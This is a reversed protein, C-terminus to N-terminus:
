HKCFARDIPDPKKLTSNQPIGFTKADKKFSRQYDLIHLWAIETM